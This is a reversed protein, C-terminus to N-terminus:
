WAIGVKLLGSFCANQFCQPSLLFYQYGANEEKGLINEIRGLVFKLNQTVNIKDDALGKFKSWDLIKDNPLSNFDWYRSVLLLKNVFYFYVGNMGNESITIIMIKHIPLPATRLTGTLPLQFFASIGDM